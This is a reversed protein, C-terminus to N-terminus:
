ATEQVSICLVIDRTLIAGHTVGRMGNHTMCIHTYYWPTVKVSTPCCALATWVACRFAQQDDQLHYGAKRWEVITKGYHVVVM